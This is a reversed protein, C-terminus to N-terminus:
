MSTKRVPGAVVQVAAHEAAGDGVRGVHQALQERREVVVVAPHVDGAEVVVDRGSAARDLAVRPSAATRRAASGRRARCEGVAGALRAEGREFAAPGARREVDVAEGAAVLAVAGLRDDRGLRRAFTEIRSTGSGPGPSSRRRTRAPAARATGSSRSSRTRWGRGAGPRDDDGGVAGRHLEGGLRHLRAEAGRGREDALAAADRDDASSLRTSPM